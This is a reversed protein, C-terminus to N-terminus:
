QFNHPRTGAATAPALLMAIVFHLSDEDSTVQINSTTIKSSYFSTVAQSAGTRTRREVDSHSTITCFCEPTLQGLTRDLPELWLQLQLIHELVSQAQKKSSDAYTDATDGKHCHSCRKVAICAQFACRLAPTYQRMYASCLCCFNSWLAPPLAARLATASTAFSLCAPLGSLSWIAFSQTLQAELHALLM